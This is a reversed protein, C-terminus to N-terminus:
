ATVNASYYKADKPLGIKPPRPVSAPAKFTKGTDADADRHIIGGVTFM